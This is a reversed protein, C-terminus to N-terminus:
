NTLQSAPGANVVPAYDDLLSDLQKQDELFAASTAIAKAAGPM